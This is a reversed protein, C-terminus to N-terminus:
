GGKCGELRSRRVNKCIFLENSKMNKIIKNNDDWHFDYFYFCSDKLSYPWKYNRDHFNWTLTLTQDTSSYL